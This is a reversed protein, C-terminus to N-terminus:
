QLPVYLLSDIYYVVYNSENKTTTLKYNKNIMDRMQKKGTNTVTNSACIGKQLTTTFQFM